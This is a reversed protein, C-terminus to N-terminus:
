LPQQSYYTGGSVPLAPDKWVVSDCYEETPVGDAMYRNNKFNFLYLSGRLWTNSLTGNPVGQCLGDYINRRVRWENIAFFLRTLNTMLTIMMVIKGVMIGYYALQWGLASTFPIFSMATAILLYIFMADVVTGPGDGCMFSYCGRGKLAEGYVDKGYQNMWSSKDDIGWGQDIFPDNDKLSVVGSCDPADVSDDGTQFEEDAMTGAGSGFISNVVSTLFGIIGPTKFVYFNGCSCPECEPYNVLPLNWRTNNIIASILIFNLNNIVFQAATWILMLALNIISSVAAGIGVFGVGAAYAAIQGLGTLIDNM